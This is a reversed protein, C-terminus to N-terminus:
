LISFIFQLVGDLGNAINYNYSVIQKNPTQRVQYFVKM